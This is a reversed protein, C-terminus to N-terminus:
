EIKATGNTCTKVTLNQIEVTEEEKYAPSELKHSTATWCTAKNETTQSPQAPQPFWGPLGTLAAAIEAAQQAAQEPNQPPPLEATGQLLEEISAAGLVTIQAELSDATFPLRCKGNIEEAEVTFTNENLYGALTIKLHLQEADIQAQLLGGDALKEALSPPLPDLFQIQIRCTKEDAIVRARM